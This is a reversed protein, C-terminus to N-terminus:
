FIHVDLLHPCRDNINPVGDGDNDNIDAAYVSGPILSVTSVLLLLFGAFLTKKM